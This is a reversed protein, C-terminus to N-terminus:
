GVCKCCIACRELFTVCSSEFQCLLSHVFSASVVTTLNTAVNKRQCVTPVGVSTKSRRTLTLCTPLLCRQVRRGCNGLSCCISLVAITPLLAPVAEWSSRGGAMPARLSTFSELLAQARRSLGCYLPTRTLLLQTCTPFAAFNGVVSLSESSPPTPTSSVAPAWPPLSPCCWIRLWDRCEKSQVANQLDPDFSEALPRKASLSIRTMDAGALAEMIFDASAVEATLKFRKFASPARFLETNASVTPADVLRTSIRM